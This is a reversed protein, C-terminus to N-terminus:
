PPRMPQLCGPPDCGPNNVLTSIPLYELQADDHYASKELMKLPDQNGSPALWDDCRTPDLLVAMRDHFRSYWDDADKVIVTCSWMEEGTKRDHWRNWLGAMAM